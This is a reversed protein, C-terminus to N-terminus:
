PHHPDPFSSNGELIMSPWLKLVRKYIFTQIFDTIKIVRLTNGFPPGLITDEEHLESKGLTYFQLMRGRHKKSTVRIQAKVM